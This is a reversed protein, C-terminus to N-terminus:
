HLRRLLRELALGIGIILLASFLTYEKDLIVRPYNIYYASRTWEVLQLVPNFSAIYRVSEPLSGAVFFIGASSYWFIMSISYITLWMPYVAAIAGNFVGFAFAVLISAGFAAAAEPVNNPWCDVGILALICLIIAVSIFASLLELVARAALLDMMKVIPYSTLCKNTVAAFVMWRSMYSFIIFPIVGTACYLINNQGFPAARGSVYFIAVLAAVHVLPWFMIFIQGLGTGFFRMKIDHLVLARIVNSYNKLPSSSLRSVRRGVAGETFDTELENLMGGEGSTTDSSSCIEAARNFSPTSASPVHLPGARDFRPVDCNICLRLKMTLMRLRLGGTM